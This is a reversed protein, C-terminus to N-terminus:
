RCCPQVPLACSPLYLRSPTAPRIDATITLFPIGSTRLVPRSGIPAGDPGCPQSGSQAWRMGGPPTGSVNLLPRQTAGPLLSVSLAHLDDIGNDAGEGHTPHSCQALCVCLIMPRCTVIHPREDPIQGQSSLLIAMNYVPLEMMHQAFEVWIVGDRSYMEMRGHGRGDAWNSRPLAWTVGSL